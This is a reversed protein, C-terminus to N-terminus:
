RKRVRAPNQCGIHELKIEFSHRLAHPPLDM